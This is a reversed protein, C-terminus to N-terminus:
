KVKNKVNIWLNLSDVPSSPEEEKFLSFEVKQNDGAITPIFTMENEWKEGDGLIIPRTENSEQGDIVIKVQYSTQKHTHNVIGVTLNATEDVTLQEPYNEAKGEPGLLYFESFTEGVKPAAVVYGLVGLAGLIAIVLIINLSKNFPNSEWSPLKLTFEQTLRIKLLRAQRVLAVISTVIIFASVSYLVPGLRIGWPTFNLGFGILAVVALSIGFSIAVREIRDMGEKRIFLVEVLVYGPFFLLFPLGLVICAVSSPIYVIAIILFVILIDIILPWSLFKIKM